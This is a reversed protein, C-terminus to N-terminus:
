GLGDKVIEVQCQYEQETLVHKMRTILWKGALRKDDVPQSPDKLNKFNFKVCDGIKLSTARNLWFHARMGRIQGSRIRIQTAWEDTHAYPGPSSIKNTMLFQQASKASEFKKKTLKEKAVHKHQGYVSSYTLDTQKWEKNVKDYTTLRGGYMGWLESELGDFMPDFNIDSALYDDKAEDELSSINKMHIDAASPKDMLKSLTTFHFGDRDQYFIYYPDNYQASVSTKAIHDICKYPNWNPFVYEEVHKAPDVSELQEGFMNQMINAVISSGTGKHAKRIRKARNAEAQLSQFHLRYRKQQSNGETFKDLKFVKAVITITSDPSETLPRMSAFQCMFFEEGIIPLEERLQETEMIDIFGSFSNLFLDEYIVLQTFAGRLDRGDLSLLDLKFPNKNAM